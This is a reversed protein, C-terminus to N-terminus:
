ARDPSSRTSGRRRAAQRTGTGSEVATRPAPTGPRPIMLVAIMGAVAVGLLVILVSQPIWDPSKGFLVPWIVSAGAALLVHGAIAGSLAGSREVGLAFVLGALTVALVLAASGVSLYTSTFLACAILAGARGTVRVLTIQVIGRFVVEEVTGIAGAACLAVFVRGPTATSWLAPAGSVYAVVSLGLGALCARLQTGRTAPFLSGGRRDTEASVSFLTQPAVGFRPALILASIGILFCILLAAAAQSGERLPLGLALVRSLPIVALALIADRGRPTLLHSGTPPWLRAQLMLLLLVADAIGGALLHGPAILAAEVGILAGACLSPLAFDRWGAISRHSVARNPLRM